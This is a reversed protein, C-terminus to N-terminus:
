SESGLGGDSDWGGVMKVEPPLLSPESPPEQVGSDAATEDLGEFRSVTIKLM